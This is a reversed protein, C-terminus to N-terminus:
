SNHIKQSEEGQIHQLSISHRKKADRPCEGTWKEFSREFTRLDQFGVAFAIETVTLHRSNILDTARAVRFWSLWERYCVGTKEHFFRSFYTKELGAVGAVIELSLPEAYHDAM